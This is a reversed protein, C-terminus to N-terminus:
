DKKPKGCATYIRDVDINTNFELNGDFACLLLSSTGAHMQAGVYRNFSPLLEQPVLGMMNLNAYLLRSHVPDRRSFCLIGKKGAVPKLSQVGRLAFLSIGPFTYPPDTVFVDFRHAFQEPLPDKLDHYVTEVDWSMKGSIKQIYNLIRQDVDMVTVGGLKIEFEDAFKLM